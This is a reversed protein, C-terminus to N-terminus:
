PRLLLRVGFLAHASADTVNADSFGLTNGTRAASLADRWSGGALAAGPATWEWVNGHLDFLGWANATRGLGVAAPASESSLTEWVVARTRVLERGHEDGWTWAGSGGAACAHAWQGADPVTLQVPHATNWATLADSIDRWALNYAPRDDAIGVADGGDPRRRDVGARRGPADM